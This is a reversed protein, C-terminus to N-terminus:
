FLMDTKQGTKIFEVTVGRATLVGTGFGTQKMNMKIIEITCTRKWIIKLGCSKIETERNNKDRKVTTTGVRTGNTVIPTIKISDITYNPLDIRIGNPILRYPIYAYQRCAGGETGKLEEENLEEM